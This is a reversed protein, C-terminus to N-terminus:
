NSKTQKARLHTLGSFEYPFYNITVSSALAMCHCHRHVKQNWRKRKSGMQSNSLAYNEMSFHENWEKFSGTFSELSFLSVLKNPVQLAAQWYDLAAQVSRLQFQFGLSNCFSLSRSIISEILLLKRLCSFRRPYRFPIFSLHLVFLLFCCDDWPCCVFTLSKMRWWNGNCSECDTENCQLPNKFIWKIWTIRSIRRFMNGPITQERYFM